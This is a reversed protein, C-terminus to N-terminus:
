RGAALARSVLRRAAWGAAILSPVAVAGFVLTWGYATAHPLPPTRWGDSFVPDSAHLMFRGVAVALLGALITTLAITGYRAIATRTVAGRSLGQLRLATLDTGREFGDTLLLAIIAVLLAILGVVLTFRDVVAPAQDALAARRESLTRDSLVNRGRLVRDVVAAPTGARIWIQPTAGLGAGGDLRLADTLDVLMGATGLQPLVPVVGTVQVPITLDAFPQVTPVTSGGPPASGAVIAPLPLPADIPFVRVDFQVDESLSGTTVAIQLGNAASTLIPGIVDIAGSTRWKDRDTFAIPGSAPKLAEIVTTFGDLPNKVTPALTEAPVVQLSVVTCGAPCNALDAAYTQDGIAIPGFTVTQAVGGADVVNLAIAVPVVPIRTTNATLTLSGNAVRTPTPAPVDLRHAIDAGSPWNGDAALVTGLRSSDVALVGGTGFSAAAMLYRGDPDAARTDSLVQAVTVGRLEVVRDAGLEQVARTARATSAVHSTLVANGVAAVAIILLILIRDLGLRRALYTAALVGAPRGRRLGGAIFWRGAPALLRAVIAAIAVAVLMPAAAALWTTAGGTTRVQVIAIVAILFVVLDVVASTWGRRRAPTNRLLDPISARSARRETIAAALIAGLLVAAISVGAMAVAARYRDAPLPGTLLRAGLFGLAAGPILAALVPLANQWGAMAAIRSRPVGHLLHVGVDPRRAAAIARLVLFLAFWGLAVLGAALTEISTTAYARDAVIRASLTGFDADLQYNRTVAIDQAAAIDGNIRDAGYTKIADPTVVVMRVIRVSPANAEITNDTVFVADAHNSGTAGSTALLDKGWYPDTSVLPQYVGVIQLKPVTGQAPGPWEVSDGIHVNLAAAYARSVMAENTAVPCAGAVTVHGCVDARYAIELASNLPAKASGDVEMTDVDTTGPITLAQRLEDVATPVGSTDTKYGGADLTQLTVTDNLIVMRQTAPATIADQTTIHDTAAYLVCPAATTGAMILLTLLCLAVAASRRSRLAALVVDLM